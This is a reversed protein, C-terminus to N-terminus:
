RGRSVTFIHRTLQLVEGVPLKALPGLGDLVVLCLIGVVVIVLPIGAVSVVM